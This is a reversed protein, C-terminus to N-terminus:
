KYLELDIQKDSSLNIHLYLKNINDYSSIPYLLTISSSYPESINNNKSLMQTPRYTNNYEDKLTIANRTYITAEDFLTNLQLEISLSTATLETKIDNVYTNYTASFESSSRKVIKDDINISFNWNGDIYKTTEGSTLAIKSIEIYLTQSTPFNKSTVLLSDRVASNDLLQQESSSYINDGIINANGISDEAMHCIINEQEDKISFETPKINKVITTEEYYKYIFSIDLSNEDMLLYDIKVGVDDYTIFDMDVNQVYGNDVAKDIGPTSNTFISTIFNIIDKAYVTTATVIGICLIFVAVRKLMIITTSKEKHKDKFANEIANQTSLPIEEDKNDYYDFLMKDFEDPKDFADFKNKQEM